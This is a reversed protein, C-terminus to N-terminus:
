FAAFQFSDFMDDYVLDFYKDGLHVPITYMLLYIYDSDRQLVIVLDIMEEGESEYTAGYWIYDHISEGIYDTGSESEYIGGNMNEYTNQLDAFAENLDAYKGGGLSTQLIQIIVSNEYEETGEPGYFEVVNGSIGYNWHEPFNMTFGYGPENFILMGPVDSPIAGTIEAQQGDGVFGPEHSLLDLREGNEMVLELYTLSWQGSSKIGKVNLDGSNFLGAVPISFDAEGSGNSVNIEGNVGNGDEIPEGLLAVAQNNAQLATMAQAYIESSRMTSRAVSLVIIFFVVLLIILSGLVLGAIKLGSKKKKTSAPPTPYNQIPPPVPNSHYHPQNSNNPPPPPLSMTDKAIFAKFDKVTQWESMGQSWVLDQPGLTEQRVQEEINEKSFPGKQQNSQYIYWETSM